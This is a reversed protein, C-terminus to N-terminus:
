RLSLVGASMSVATMFLSAAFLTMLSSSLATLQLRWAPGDRRSVTNQRTWKQRDLRFFIYVKMLSGFIQNFFILFPYAVSVRPRVSMLVLTMAYRSSLVWVAYLVGAFPDVFLTGVLAFAIGTLCTWMSVRQDIIAWWTFLGIREPGLAIARGNTRLMNGFWRVMLMAASRVFGPAPPQEVTVVVVDPVYLMRYGRKLLFFWSSKDDGTLFKVRGLRWHEISDEEVHSVFAEDCAIRARFMSMRGTLTLVRGSLGMSCMLIQRQAFRLSYWERFIERGEVECSEDTTLAGVDPSLAFFPACREVLDPPVISDGDIVAVTDNPGPERAAIARFGHALADRKGSGAIRVVVLHVNRDAREGAVFGFLRRILREDGMEVISAVVTAGAPAALAAEFAARYVRTTTRADIRFSTVLLFAHGVGDPADGARRRMAPFAVKRYWLSRAFHTLGWGYRWLGITGIALVAGRHEAMWAEAPLALVLATLGTLYAAHAWVSELPDGASARTTAM